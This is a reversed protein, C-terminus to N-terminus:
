AAVTAKDSQQPMQCLGAQALAEVRYWGRRFMCSRVRVDDCTWRWLTFRSVGCLKAAAATRLLM